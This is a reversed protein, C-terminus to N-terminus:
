NDYVYSGVVLRFMLHRLNNIRLSQVSKMLHYMNILLPMCILKSYHCILHSCAHFSMVFWTTLKEPLKIYVLDIDRLFGSSFSTCLLQWRVQFWSFSPYLKSWVYLLWFARATSQSITLLCFSGSFNSYYLIWLLQYSM